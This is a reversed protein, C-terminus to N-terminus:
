RRISSCCRRSRPRRSTRAAPSSRTPRRGVIALRGSADLEGLDGTHLWGDDALAGAAVARGRVLVEGDTAIRLEAGLLAYGDTAIQSCTETMGFSPSVPVGADAARTLLAPAIPGGGLLVRRLSPPERLGADLLRSLMTPVLSVLTIGAEPDMLAALARDTDFRDHLVVATGYIASRLQISLGGVHALPM